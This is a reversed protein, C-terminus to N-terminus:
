TESPSAWDASRGLLALLKTQVNSDHSVKVPPAYLGSDALQKQMSLARGYFVLAVEEDFQVSIKLAQGLDWAHILLDNAVEWLYAGVTVDGYSLHATERENCVKVAVIAREEAVHWAAVPEDGLLDGEYQDGVEAITKGQVLSAVWSLEYLMHSLLDRVSWETDPTPLSYEATRVTNVVSTAEDLCHLFLEKVDM